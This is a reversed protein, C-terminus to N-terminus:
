AKKEVDARWAKYDLDARDNAQFELSLGAFAKKMTDKTSAYKMKPKIPGNDDSRFRSLFIGIKM